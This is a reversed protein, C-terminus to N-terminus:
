DNTNEKDLLKQVRQHEHEDVEIDTTSIKKRINTLLFIFAICMLFAPGAWLLLTSNNVPPNYLVFDTFREVLFTKIEEDTKGQQVMSYVKNRIDKALGANSEAITQNQCVTCRIEDILEHFREKKVPDDFHYINFASVQFSITILLFTFIINKM